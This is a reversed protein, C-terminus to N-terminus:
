QSILLSAHSRCCESATIKLELLVIAASCLSVAACDPGSFCWLHPYLFFLCVGTNPSSPFAQHKNLAPDMHRTQILFAASKMTLTFRCLYDQLTQVVASYVSQKNILFFISRQINEDKHRIHKMYQNTRLHTKCVTPQPNTWFTLLLQALDRIIWM